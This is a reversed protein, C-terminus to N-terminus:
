GLATHIHKTAHLTSYDRWRTLYICSPPNCGLRPESAHLRRVTAKLKIPFYIDLFLSIVPNNSQLTHQILSLQEIRPRFWSLFFLNEHFTVALRYYESKVDQRKYLMLRRFKGDRMSTRLRRLRMGDWGM